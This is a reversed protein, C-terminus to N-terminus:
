ESHWTEVIDFDAVDDFEGVDVFNARTLEGNTTLGGDRRLLNAYLGRDHLVRLPPHLDDELFLASLTVLARDPVLM